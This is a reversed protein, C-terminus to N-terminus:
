WLGQARLQALRTLRQSAEQLPLISPLVDGLPPSDRKLPNKLLNKFRRTQGPKRMAAHTAMHCAHCLFIVNLPEDYTWHHANVPGWEDCRECFHPRALRNAQSQAIRKKRLQASVKFGQNLM